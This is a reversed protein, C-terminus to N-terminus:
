LPIVQGSEGDVRVRQGTKLRTTAEPVGVVAPIGYERAVVSGHSMIGGIEMVLAGATLFLPTWAPDTGPAVLVEGPQIHAGRPDFIVRVTGEHVGASAPTGVLSGKQIEGARYFVEGTSTIVRPVARRGLERQYEAKNDAALARFDKDTTLDQLSLFCVDDARDLKGAAVLEAGAGLAVRRHIAFLRMAMFKPVERTGVLARIRKILFRLIGAHLRGKKQRVREVLEDATRDAEEEGRRFWAEPDSEEHHSLYNNLIALVPSPEDHWRPMGIDIERVGRHGYVALFEKVTPHTASPVANEAKLRQSLRWLTLDMETTPNHPLSRLLPQLGSADGLWNRLLEEARFRAAMGPVVLPAAAKAVITPVVREGEAELFRLREEIGKLQGARRDVDSIYAEFKSIALRRGTDPFAMTVLARGLAPLLVGLSPRLPFKAGEPSLAPERAILLRFIDVMPRDIITPVALLGKRSKTNQFAPTADVYIRGGATKFAGPFTGPTTKHGLFAAVGRSLYRFASIGLPTFPEPFGQLYNICVNVRLGAEPPPAPVPLPFLSTIPRSQLMYFQGDAFAWEIDQPSQFHDAVRRGLDTLTALGSANLVPWEQLDARVPVLATGNETRVTMVTKVGTKAELVSGTTYDLVWHDPSVQGSVVAEGLGWAADVVMQDRRGNVPNATFLIGASESPILRQVVVALSVEGAGIGQRARYAIARATWLSSWCKRVAALVAQPGEINLYTEQQGAFSAEPLDEATASSRVAVPGEGLETYAKIIEQSIAEPIEEQEFLALISLFADELTDPEDPQAQNALREISEQLGYDAVFRCYAATTLVFGPPVQLGARAMEALNIGKGGALALDHKDLEDLWRVFEM